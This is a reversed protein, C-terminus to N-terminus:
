CNSLVKSSKRLKEIEQKLKENETEINQYELDEKQLLYNHLWNYIFLSTIIYIYM